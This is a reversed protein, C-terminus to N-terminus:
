MLFSLAETKIIEFVSDFSIKLDCSFSSDFYIGYVNKGADDKVAKVVPEFDRDGALLFAVDYHNEYAKSLMDISILTDIGKQKYGTKGKSSKTMQIIKVHVMNMEKLKDHYIRVNEHKQDDSTGDYYYIRILDALTTPFFKECAKGFIDQLNAEIISKKEDGLFLKDKLNDEMQRRLYGGDVFMM